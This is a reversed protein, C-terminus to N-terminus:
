RAGATQCRCSASSQRVVVSGKLVMLGRYNLSSARLRMLIEKPRPSSVVEIAACETLAASAISATPELGRM